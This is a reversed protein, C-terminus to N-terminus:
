IIDAELSDPTESAPTQYTCTQGRRICHNCNPRARNCRVKRQRCFVCALAKRGRTRRAVRKVSPGLNLLTHLLPAVRRVGASM